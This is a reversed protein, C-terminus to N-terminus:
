EDEMEFWADHAVLDMAWRGRETLDYRVRGSVVDQGMVIWGNAVCRNVTAKCNGPSDFGADYTLSDVHRVVDVPFLGGLQQGYAVTVPDGMVYGARDEILEMLRREDRQLLCDLELWNPIRGSRMITDLDRQWDTVMRAGLEAQDDLYATTQDQGTLMDSMQNVMTIIM